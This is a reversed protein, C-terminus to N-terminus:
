RRRKGKKPQGSMQTLTNFLAMMEAMEEPSMNDLDFDDGDDDDDDFDFMNPPSMQQVLPHTGNVMETFATPKKGTEMWELFIKKMEQMMAFLNQTQDAFESSDGGYKEAKKNQKVMGGLDSTKLNQL